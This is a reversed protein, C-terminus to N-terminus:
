SRRAMSSLVGEGAEVSGDFRGYVTDYKLLQALLPPIRSTM